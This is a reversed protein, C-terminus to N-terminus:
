FPDAGADGIFVTEYGCDLNELFVFYLVWFGVGWGVIFFKWPDIDFTPCQVIFFGRGQSGPYFIAVSVM